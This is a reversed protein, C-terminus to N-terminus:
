EENEDGAKMLKILESLSLERRVFFSRLPNEDTDRWTRIFSELIDHDGKITWVLRVVPIERDGLGINPHTQIRERGVMIHGAFEPNKRFLDGIVQRFQDKVKEISASDLKCLTSISYSEDWVLM